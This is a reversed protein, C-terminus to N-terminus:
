TIAYTKYMLFYDHLTFFAFFEIIANFVLDEFIEHRSRTLRCFIKRCFATRCFISRCFFDNPLFAFPLLENPLFFLYASVINPLFHQDASFTMRCFESRCFLESPLFHQQGSFIMQCVFAQGFTNNPLINWEASSWKASYVTIRWNM